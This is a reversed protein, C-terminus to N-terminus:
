GLFPSLIPDIGHGAGASTDTVCDDTQERSGGILTIVPLQSLWMELGASGAWGSRRELGRCTPGFGWGRQRWSAGGLRDTM